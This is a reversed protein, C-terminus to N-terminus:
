RVGTLAGDGDMRRDMRSEDNWEVWGREAEARDPGIPERSQATQHGHVECYSSQTVVHLRQAPLYNRPGLVSSIKPVSHVLTTVEGVQGGASFNLSM